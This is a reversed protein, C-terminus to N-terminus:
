LGCDVSLVFLLRFCLIYLLVLLIFSCIGPICISWSEREEWLVSTIVISFLLLFFMVFLLALSLM